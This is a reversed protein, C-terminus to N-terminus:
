GLEYGKGMYVADVGADELKEIKEKVIGGDVGIRFPIGMKMQIQKTQKIKDWVREDFPMEEFGAKRSMLLVDDCDLPINTIPTNIDFALGAEFGLDHATELFSAPSSMMEVQGIVRLAGLEQCKGLWKIPEKVLLHIEWVFEGAKEYAFLDELTFTKGDCFQGDMVDVQVTTSKGCLKDLRDLAAKTDKEMVTAIIQM